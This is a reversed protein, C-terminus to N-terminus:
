TLGTDPRCVQCPGIYPEALAIRAEMENIFGGQGKYLTCAGRHVLAATGARKPQIKWSSQARAAERRRREVEDRKEEDRIAARTRELQHSQYEEVVRLKDLRSLASPDPM